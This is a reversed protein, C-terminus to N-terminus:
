KGAGMNTRVAKCTFCVQTVASHHVSFAIQQVHNQENCSKTHVIVQAQMDLFDVRFSRVKARLKQVLPPVPDPDVTLTTHLGAKICNKELLGCVSCKKESM